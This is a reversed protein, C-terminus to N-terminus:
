YSCCPSCCELSDPWTPENPDKLRDLETEKENIGRQARALRIELDLKQNLLNAKELDERLKKIEGKLTVDAM